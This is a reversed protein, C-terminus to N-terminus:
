PQWIIFSGKEYSPDSPSVGIVYRGVIQRLDNIGNVETHASGPFDLATFKGAQYFFGHHGGNADIYWGVINGENNIGTLTSGLLGEPHDITTFVEKDLLFGHAETRTFDFYYYGVVQNANNVGLVFTEAAGPYDVATYQTWSNSTFGHAHGDADYYFGVRFGNDSMARGETPQVPVYFVRYLNNYARRIFARSHLWFQFSATGTVEGKNNIHRATTSKVTFQGSDGPVSVLVPWSGTRNFLFARLRKDRDGYATAAMLGKNNISSVNLDHVKYAAPARLKTFQYSPAPESCDGECGLEALFIDETGASQLTITDFLATGRYGGTVLVAGTVAGTGHPNEEVVETGAGDAKKVWDVEGAPTYKVVFLNYPKDGTLLHGEIDITGQFAGVVYLNGDQDYAIGSGQQDQPGGFIAQKILGGAGDYTEVFVETASAVTWVFGTISIRGEPSVAVDTGIGRLDERHKVWKANGNRDYKVLFEDTPYGNSVPGHGPPVTLNHGDNSHFITTNQLWGAIYANSDADVAVKHAVSNPQAENWQAWQFHGDSDYKALFVHWTGPGPIGHVTGDSSSFTTPGQSRGTIYVTGARPEVAVGFGDNNGTSYGTATQVWVLDGSSAYKALLITWGFGTLTHPPGNVSRFTASGTFMGSVYINGVGDLALDYGVDDGTGGVQLLWLLQGGSGYKALFMDTGGDSVLTRNGFRTTSSFWGTVYRNGLNDVKVANGQDSGVGGFSVAQTWTPASEAFAVPSLLCLVTLLWKLHTRVMNKIVFDMAYSRKEFQFLEMWGFSVLKM